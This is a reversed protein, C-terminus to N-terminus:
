WYIGHKSEGFPKNEVHSAKTTYEFRFKTYYEILNPGWNLEDRLQTIVELALVFYQRRIEWLRYKKVVELDM